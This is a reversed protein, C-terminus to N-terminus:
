RWATDFWIGDPKKSGERETNGEVIGQANSGNTCRCGKGNTYGTNRSATGNAEADNKGDIRLGFQCEKKNIGEAIVVVACKGNVMWACDNECDIVTKFSQQKLPCKM